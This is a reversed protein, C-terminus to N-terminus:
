GPEGRHKRYVIVAADVILLAAAVCFFVVFGVPANAVALVIAGGVAMVLGIIALVLRLTLASVAPPAGGFGGLPDHYDPLGRAYREREAARQRAREKEDM